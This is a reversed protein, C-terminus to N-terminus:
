TIVSKEPTRMCPPPDALHHPSDIWAGSFHQTAVGERAIRFICDCAGRRALTITVRGCPVPRCSARYATYLKSSPCMRNADVKREKKLLKWHGADILADFFRSSSSALYVDPWVDTPLRSASTMLHPCSRADCIYLSPRSRPTSGWTTATASSFVCPVVERGYESCSSLRWDYGIGMLTATTAHDGGAHASMSEAATAIWMCAPVIRCTIGGDGGGEAYECIFGDARTREMKIASLRGLHVFSGTRCSGFECIGSASPTADLLVDVVQKCQGLLVALM